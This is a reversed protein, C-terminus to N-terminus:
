TNSAFDSFIIIDLFEDLSEGSISGNKNVTKLNYKDVLYVLKLILRQLYYRCNTTLNFDYELKGGHAIASRKRYISKLEKFLDLREKVDISLLLAGKQSFKSGISKEDENGLILREIAAAYFFLRQNDPSNNDAIRLFLIADKIRSELDSSPNVYMVTLRDIIQKYKSDYICRSYRVGMYLPIPNGNKINWSIAHQPLRLTALTSIRLIDLTEEAFKFAKDTGMYSSISSYSIKLWYGCSPDAPISIKEFIGEWIAQNCPQVEHKSLGIAVNKVEQPLSAFKLLSGHGLSYNDSFGELETIQFFYNVEKISFYKDLILQFENRSLESAMKGKPRMLFWTLEGSNFLHDLKLSTIKNDISMALREYQKSDKQEFIKLCEEKLKEIRLKENLNGM